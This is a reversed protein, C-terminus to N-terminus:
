ALKVVERGYLQRGIFEIKPLAHHIDFIKNQVTVIAYNNTRNHDHLALTIASM